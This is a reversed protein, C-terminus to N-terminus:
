RTTTVEAFVVVRASQKLQQIGFEGCKGCRWSMESIKRSRENMVGDKVVKLCFFYKQKNKTERVMASTSCSIETPQDFRQTSFATSYNKESKGLM